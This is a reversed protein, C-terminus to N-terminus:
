GLEFGQGGFALGDVQGSLGPPSVAGQYVVPRVVQELVVLLEEDFLVAQFVGRLAAQHHEPLEM